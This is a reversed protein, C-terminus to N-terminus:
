QQPPLSDSIKQKLKAELARLKEEQQALKNKGQEIERKLKRKELQKKIFKLCM